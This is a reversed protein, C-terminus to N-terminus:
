SQFVKDKIALAVKKVLSRPIAYRAPAPIFDIIKDIVMEVNGDSGIKRFMNEIENEYPYVYKDFFKDLNSKDDTIRVREENILSARLRLEDDTLEQKAERAEYLAIMACIFETLSYVANLERSSLSIEVKHESSWKGKLPTVIGSLQLYGNGYYINMDEYFMRIPNGWREKYYIYQDTILCGIEGDNSLTMDQSILVEENPQLSNHAIVAKSGKIQKSSPSYDEENWIYLNTGAIDRKICYLCEQLYPYKEVLSM